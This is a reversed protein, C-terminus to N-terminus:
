GVGSSSAAGRTRGTLAGGGSSGAVGACTSGGVGGAHGLVCSSTARNPGARRGIATVVRRALAHLIRPRLIVGDSVAHGFILEPGCIGVAIAPEVLLFHTCGSDVFFRLARLYYSPLRRLLGLILEM